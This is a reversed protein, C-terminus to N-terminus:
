AAALWYPAAVLTCHPCPRAHEAQGAPVLLGALFAAHEVEDADGSWEGLQQEIFELFGVHESCDLRTHALNPQHLDFIVTHTTM